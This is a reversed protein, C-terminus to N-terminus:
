AIHRAAANHAHALAWDGNRWRMHEDYDDNISHGCSMIAEDYSIM